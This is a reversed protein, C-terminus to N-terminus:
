KPCPRKEGRALAELWETAREDSVGEGTLLYHEWRVADEAKEREYREERELYNDLAEKMLYDPSRKKLEGLAQLRQTTTEDLKLEQTTTM